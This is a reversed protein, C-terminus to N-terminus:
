SAKKETFSLSSRLLPKPSGDTKPNRSLESTFHRAAGAVGLRIYHTGATRELAFHATPRRPAPAGSAKITMARSRRSRADLLERVRPALANPTFPKQPFADNKALVGHRVVTDDTYRRYQRDGFPPIRRFSVM